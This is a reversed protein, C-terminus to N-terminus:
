SLHRNKDGARSKGKLPHTNRKKKEREQPCPSLPETHRYRQWDTRIRGDRQGDPTQGVQPGKRRQKGGNRILTHWLTFCSETLTTPVRYMEETETHTHTHTGTLTIHSSQIYKVSPCKSHDECIYLVAELNPIAKCKPAWFGQMCVHM